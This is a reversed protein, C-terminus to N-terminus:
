PLSEFIALLNCASDGADSFDVFYRLQWAQTKKAQSSTTQDWPPYIRMARKGEKGNFSIIGQQCLVRKPFIFQGFHTETRVSVVLFDILDSSDYPLIPSKESRKWLTVFQGIKTPTTKGVRFKISRHGITFEAAGYDSSETEINLNHLVFGLKKYIDQIILLDPHATKM